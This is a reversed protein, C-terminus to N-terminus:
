KKMFLVRLALTQLAELANPTKNLSFSNNSETQLPLSERRSIIKAFLNSKAILRAISGISM